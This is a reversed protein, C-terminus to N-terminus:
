EKSIAAEQVEQSLFYEAQKAVDPNHSSKLEQLLAVAAAWDHKKIELDALALEYIESRPALVSAKRIVATAQDFLGSRSLALAQMRYVDAFDPDLQVCAALERDLL